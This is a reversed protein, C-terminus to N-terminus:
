GSEGPLCRLLKGVSAVWQGGAGFSPYDSTRFHFSLRGKVGWGCIDARWTSSKRYLPGRVWRRLDVAMINMKLRYYLLKTSKAIMKWTNQHTTKQRGKPESKYIAQTYVQNGCVNKHDKPSGKILERKLSHYLMRVHPKKLDSMFFFACPLFIPFLFPM